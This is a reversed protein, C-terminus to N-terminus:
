CVKNFSSERKRNGTYGEPKWQLWTVKYKEAHESGLAYHQLMYNYTHIRDVIIGLTKDSVHIYCSLLLVCFFCLEVTVSMM